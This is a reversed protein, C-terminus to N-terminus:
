IQLTHTLTTHEGEPLRAAAPFCSAAHLSTNSCQIAVPFPSATGLLAVPLATFQTLSAYLCVLLVPRVELCGSPSQSPPLLTWCHPRGAWKGAALKQPRPNEETLDEM